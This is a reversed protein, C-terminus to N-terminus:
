QVATVLFASLPVNKKLDAKFFTTSALFTRKSFIPFDLIHRFSVISPKEDPKDNIILLYRNNVIVRFPCVSKDVILSLYSIIKDIM